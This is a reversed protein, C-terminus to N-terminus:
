NPAVLNETSLDDGRNATGGTTFLVIRAGPDVLFLLFMQADGTIDSDKIKSFKGVGGLTGFQNPFYQVELLEQGNVKAQAFKGVFKYQKGQDDTVLYNQITSTAFTMARGLTSRAQLRGVNLQLLRKDSPISFKTLKAATGEAQDDVVASLHGSQLQEGQVEMNKVDQYATLVLPLEEGFHSQASNAALGRARGARRRSRRDARTNGTTASSDAATPATPPPTAATPPPDAAPPAESDGETTDAPEIPEEDRFTVEITAGYKYELYKPEFGAPLEYVVEVEGPADPLPGFLSDVIPWDKGNKVNLRIHRDPHESADDQLAIPFFQSSTGRSREQGVLRLQRPTFRHLDRVDMAEENLKIRVRRFEHNSEPRIPEYDLTDAQGRRGQVKTKKYVYEVTGTSMLSVSDPPAFTSVGIPVALNWRAARVPDPNELAYDGGGSFVGKSMWAALGVVFRDPSFLLEVEPKNIDPPPPNLGEAEAAIHSIDIPAYVGLINGGFPVQVLAFTLMGVLTYGTILGCVGAAARELMAPLIPTRRILQDFMVRLAILPLGFTMGIALPVAYDPKWKSLWNIAVWDYSGFAFAACCLTLVTMIMASFFGQTAQLLAVVGILVVLILSLTM